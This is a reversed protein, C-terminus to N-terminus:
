YAGYYLPASTVPISINSLVCIILLGVPLWVMPVFAVIPGNPVLFM